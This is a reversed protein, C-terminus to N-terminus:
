HRTAMDDSANLWGVLREVERWLCFQAANDRARSQAARLQAALAADAGHDRALDIAADVVKRGAVFPAPARAAGSQPPLPSAM